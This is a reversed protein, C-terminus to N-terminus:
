GLSPSTLALAVPFVAECGKQRLLAGVVAFTWRSDVMDDILLCPGYSGVDLTVEFADELNKAQQFSNQMEKQPRTNKIKTVCDMFPIGLSDALRKAFDPVITPNNLSPVSTVWTPAPDPSWQKIM